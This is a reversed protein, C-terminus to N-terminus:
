APCPSFLRKGGSQPAELAAVRGHRAMRDLILYVRAFGVAKGGDDSLSRYVTAASSPAHLKELAALIRSEM